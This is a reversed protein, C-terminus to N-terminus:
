GLDKRTNHEKLYLNGCTVLVKPYSAEYRSFVVDVLVDEKDLLQIYDHCINEWEWILNLRVVRYVRDSIIKVGKVHRLYQYIMYWVVLRSKKNRISVLCKHDM